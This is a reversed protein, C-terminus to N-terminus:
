RPGSISEQHGGTATLHRIISTADGRDTAGTAHRSICQDETPRSPSHEKMAPLTSRHEQMEPQEGTVMLHGDASM